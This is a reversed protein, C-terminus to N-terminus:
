CHSGFAPNLAVIVNVANGCLSVAVHVPIVALQIPATVNMSSAVSANSALAVGPGGLLGIAVLGAIVASVPVMMRRRFM